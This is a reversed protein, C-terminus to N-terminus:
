DGDTAECEAIAEPSTCIQIGCLHDRYNCPKHEDPYVGHVCDIRTIECMHIVKSTCNNKEM